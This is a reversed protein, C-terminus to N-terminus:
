KLLAEKEEIDIKEKESKIREDKIRYSTEESEQKKKNIEFKKTDVNQKLQEIM